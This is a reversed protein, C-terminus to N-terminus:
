DDVGPGRRTRVVAAAVGGLVLLGAGTALAGTRTAGAEAAQVGTDSRLGVNVVAVPTTSAPEAAPPVVAPAALVQLEVTAITVPGGPTPDGLLVSLHHRGAGLEAPLTVTADWPGAATYRAPDGSLPIPADHAGTLDVLTVEADQLTGHGLA